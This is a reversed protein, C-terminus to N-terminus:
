LDEGNLDEGELLRGGAAVMLERGRTYAWQIAGTFKAVDRAGCLHMYGDADINL